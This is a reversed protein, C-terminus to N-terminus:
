VCFQLVIQLVYSVVILSFGAFLSAQKRLELRAQEFSNKAHGDLHGAVIKNMEVGYRFMSEARSPPDPFHISSGQQPTAARRMGLLFGYSALFSGALGLYASIITVVGITSSYYIAHGLSVVALITLMYALFKKGAEFLSQMDKAISDVEGRFAVANFSSLGLWKILRRHRTEWEYHEEASRRFAEQINNM